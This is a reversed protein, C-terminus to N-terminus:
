EGTERELRRSEQQTIYVDLASKRACLMSTIIWDELDLYMRELATARRRKFAADPRKRAEAIQNNM